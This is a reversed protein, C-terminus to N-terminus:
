DLDSPDYRPERQEDADRADDDDDYTYKIDKKESEFFEILKLIIQEFTTDKSGLKALKNRTTRTIAVTTTKM